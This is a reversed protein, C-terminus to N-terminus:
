AEPGGRRDRDQMYRSLPMESIREVVCLQRFAFRVSASIRQEKCVWDNM